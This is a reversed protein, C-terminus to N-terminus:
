FFAEPLTNITVHCTKNSVVLDRLNTLATRSQMLKNVLSRFFIFDHIIFIFQLCSSVRKVSCLHLSILQILAYYLMFVKCQVCKKSTILNSVTKFGNVHGFNPFVHSACSGECKNVVVKGSCVIQRNGDTSEEEINKQVMMIMPLTRCEEARANDLLTAFSPLMCQVVYATFVILQIKMNMKSRCLLIFSYLFAGCFPILPM